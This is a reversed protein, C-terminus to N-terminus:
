PASRPGPPSARRTLARISRREHGVIEFRIDQDDATAGAAVDGRNAGRLEAEGGHAHLTVRREAARAHVDAANRALRQELRRVVVLERALTRCRVAHHEASTPSSRATICFRFVVHDRLVRAADLIRNLFFSIVHARPLPVSCAPFTTSTRPAGGSFVIVVYLGFYTMMAVPETGISSGKRWKSSSRTRELTPASASVSTGFCRMTMPPPTM